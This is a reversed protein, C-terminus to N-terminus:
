YHRRVIIFVNIMVMIENAIYTEEKEVQYVVFFKTLSVDPLDILFHSM